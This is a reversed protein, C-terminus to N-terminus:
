AGHSLQAESEALKKLAHLQAELWSSLVASEAPDADGGHPQYDLRASIRPHNHGSSSPNAAEACFALSGHYRPDDVLEACLCRQTPDLSVRERWAREHRTVERLLGEEGSALIRVASASADIRQPLPACDALLSWVLEVPADVPLTFGAVPM